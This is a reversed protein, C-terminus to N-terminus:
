CPSQRPACVGPQSPCPPGASTLTWRGRRQQQPEREPATTRKEGGSRCRVPLAPRGPVPYLGARRGATHCQGAARGRQASGGRLRLVRQLPEARDRSLPPAALGAPRPQRFRPMVVEPERGPLGADGPLPLADGEKERFGFGATQHRPGAGEPGSRRSGPSRPGAQARSAPSVIESTPERLGLPLQGRQMVWQGKGMRGWRGRAM